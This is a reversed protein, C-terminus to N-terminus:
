AQQSASQPQELRSAGQLNQFLQKWDDPPQGYQTAAVAFDLVGAPPKQLAAQALVTAADERAISLREAKAPEQSFSLQSQRSPMSTLTGIRVVTSPVSSSLVLQQRQQDALVRDEQGMFMSGLLGQSAAGASALLVLHPVRQAKAAPVIAGLRGICIVAQVDALHRQLEVADDAKM